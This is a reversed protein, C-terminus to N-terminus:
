ITTKPTSAAQAMVLNSDGPLVNRIESISRGNETLGTIEPRTNTSNNPACPYQPGHSCLWLTCTSNATGPMASAVVKTVKGNTARASIGSICSCPVWSSSAAIESPADPKCVKKRTVKGLILHPTSYPTSSQLARAMPSNPATDTTDPWMRPSVLVMGSSTSIRYLSYWNTDDNAIADSSAISARTVRTTFVM